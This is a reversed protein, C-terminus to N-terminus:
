APASLAGRLELAAGLPPLPNAVRALWWALAEPRDAARGSASPALLNEPQGGYSRRFWDGSSSRARAVLHRRPRSSPGPRATVADASGELRRGAVHALWVRHTGVARELRLRLRCADRERTSASRPLKMQHDVAGM